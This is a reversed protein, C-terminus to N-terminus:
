VRQSRPSSAACYLPLSYLHRRYLPLGAMPSGPCGPSSRGAAMEQRWYFAFFGPPAEAEAGRSLQKTQVSFSAANALCSVLLLGSVGLSSALGRLLVELRVGSVECLLGVVLFMLDTVVFQGWM